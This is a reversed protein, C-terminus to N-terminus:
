KEGEAEKIYLGRGELVSFDASGCSPCKIYLSATEPVFHIAEAQEHPLSDRKMGFEAGCNNCKFKAKETELKLVAEEVGKYQKKVEDFIGTFARPSINQVEGLVVTVGTIKKFGEKKLVGACAAATADSLAWEHM